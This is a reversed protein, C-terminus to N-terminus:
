SSVNDGEEKLLVTDFEDIFEFEAGEKVSGLRMSDLLRQFEPEYMKLEGCSALHGIDPGMFVSVHVHEGKKVHRLKAAPMPYCLAGCSPCQKDTYVGGPDIRQSLHEIPDCDEKSYIRKCDDCQYTM